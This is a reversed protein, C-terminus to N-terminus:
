RNTPLLTARGTSKTFLLLTFFSSEGCTHTHTHKYITVQVNSGQPFILYKKGLLGRKSRTGNVFHAQSSSADLPSLLAFLMLFKVLTNGSTMESYYYLLCVTDKYISIPCVVQSRRSLSSLSNKKKTKNRRQM